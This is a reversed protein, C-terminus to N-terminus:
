RGLTPLGMVYKISGGILATVTATAISAIKAQLYRFRQGLQTDDSLSVFHPLAGTRVTFIATATASIAAGDVLYDLSAEGTLGVDVTAGDANGVWGWLDVDVITAGHPIKALFIISSASVTNGNAIWYIPMTVTGEHPAMVNRAASSGVLAPSTAHTVEAM